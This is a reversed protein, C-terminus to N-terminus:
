QRKRDATSAAADLVALSGAGAGSGSSAAAAAAAAAPGANKRLTGVEAVPVNAEHAAADARSLRIIILLVEVLLLTVGFAAATIYPQLLLPASVSLAVPLQSLLHQTARALLCRKRVCLSICSAFRRNRM